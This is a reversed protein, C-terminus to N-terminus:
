SQLLVNSDGVIACGRTQTAFKDFLRLVAPRGRREVLVDWLAELSGIRDHWCMRGM